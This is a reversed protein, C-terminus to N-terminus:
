VPKEDTSSNLSHHVYLTKKGIATVIRLINETHLNEGVLSRSSYFILPVKVAPGRSRDIYGSLKDGWLFGTEPDGYEVIVRRAKKRLRESVAQEDSRLDELIRIVEPATDSRYTTGNILNYEWVEPAEPKDQFWQGAIEPATARNADTFPVFYFPDKEFHAM